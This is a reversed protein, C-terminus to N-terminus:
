KCDSFFRFSSRNYVTYLLTVDFIWGTTVLYYYSFVMSPFFTRRVRPTVTDPMGSKEGLDTVRGVYEIYLLARDHYLFVRFFSMELSLFFSSVSVFFSASLCNNNPLQVHSDPRMCTYFFSQVFPRAKLSLM